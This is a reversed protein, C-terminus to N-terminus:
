QGFFHQRVNVDRHLCEGKHLEDLAWAVQALVQLVERCTPNHVRAWEYLPRGRIWEMVVYPHAVEASAHWLGQDLLQPIGPHPHRSLLEVERHFRPDSPFLAIKLAVPKSHPHGARRARYVVGYSGRGSYGEVEWLGVIAGPRLSDPTQTDTM